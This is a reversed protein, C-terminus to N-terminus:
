ASPTEQRYIVEGSFMKMIKRSWEVLWRYSWHIPKSQGEKEEELTIPLVIVPKKVPPHAVSPQTSGDAIVVEEFSHDAQEEVKQLFSEVEVPLEPNAEYEVQQLGAGSEVPGIDPSISTASEKLSTASVQEPNLTDTAALTAQPVAQAIVGANGKLAEKEVETIVQDLVDLKGQTTDVTAVKKNAISSTSFSSRLRSMVQAPDTM